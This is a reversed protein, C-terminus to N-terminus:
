CARPMTAQAMSRGRRRAVARPRGCGTGGLALRCSWSRPSARDAAEGCIPVFVTSALSEYTTEVSEEWEPAPAPPPADWAELDVTMEGAHAGTVLVAGGPWTAILWDGRQRARPLATRPIETVNGPEALQVFYYDYATNTRVRATLV